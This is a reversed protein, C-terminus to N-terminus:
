IETKSEDKNIIWMRKPHVVLQIIPNGKIEIRSTQLKGEIRVYMGRRFKKDKLRDVFLSKSNNFAIIRVYERSETEMDSVYESSHNTILQFSVYKKGNKAKKWIVNDGVVGQLEVKNVYEIKM